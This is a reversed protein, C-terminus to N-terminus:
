KMVTIRFKTVTRFQVIFIQYVPYKIHPGWLTSVWFSLVVSKPCVTHNQKHTHTHILPLKLCGDKSCVHLCFPVFEQLRGESMWVCQM